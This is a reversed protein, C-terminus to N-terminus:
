PTIEEVIPPGDAYERMLSIRGELERLEEKLSNTHYSTAPPDFKTRAYLAVYAKVSHLQNVPLNLDEWAATNDEIFFGDIPGVGLQNLTSFAANIYTVIDLDFSTDDEEINLLRKTTTLISSM